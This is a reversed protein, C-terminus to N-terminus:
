LLEEQGPRESGFLAESQLARGERDLEVGIRGALEACREVLDAAEDPGVKGDRLRAAVAELEAILPDLEAGSV